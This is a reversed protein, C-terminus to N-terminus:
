KRSVSPISDRARVAMSDLALFLPYQQPLELIEPQLVFHQLTPNAKVVERGSTVLIMSVIQKAVALRNVAVFIVGFETRQTKSDYEAFKPSVERLMENGAEVFDIFAPVYHTGLLTYCFRRRIPVENYNEV